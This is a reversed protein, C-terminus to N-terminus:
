DMRRHSCFKAHSKNLSVFVFSINIKNKDRMAQEDDIFIM